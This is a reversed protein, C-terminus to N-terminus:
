RNPCTGTACTPAANYYYGATYYVPRAMPVFAAQPAPTTKQPAPAAQPAPVVVPRQAACPACQQPAYYYVPAQCVQRAGCHQGWAPRGCQNTGCHRGGFLGSTATLATLLVISHM